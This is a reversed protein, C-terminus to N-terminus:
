EGPLDCSVPLVQYLFEQENGCRSCSEDDLFCEAVTIAALIAEDSCNWDSLDDFVSWCDFAVCSTPSADVRGCLAETAEVSTPDSGPVESSEGEGEGVDGDGSGPEDPGPNTGPATAAPALLAGFAGEFTDTALRISSQGRLDYLPFV